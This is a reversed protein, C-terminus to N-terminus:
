LLVRHASDMGPQVRESAMDCALRVDLTDATHSKPQGVTDYLQGAHSSVAQSTSLACM